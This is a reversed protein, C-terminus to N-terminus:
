TFAPLSLKSQSLPESNPRQQCEKEQFRLACQTGDHRFDGRRLEAVAGIRAAMYILM